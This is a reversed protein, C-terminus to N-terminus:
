KSINIVRTDVVQILENTNIIQYNEILDKKFDFHILRQFWNKRRNRWVKSKYVFLDQRNYIEPICTLISDVRSIKFTTLQNPKLEVSFDKEKAPIVKTITDTLLTTASLAQKLQKDKIKLSDKTKKIEQILSDNSQKFDEITLTLSRNNDKSKSVLNEYQIINSKAIGLENDLKDVKKKLYINSGVLFISIALLINKLSLAGSISM